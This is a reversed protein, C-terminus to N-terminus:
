NTNNEHVGTKGTATVTEASIRLRNRHRSNNYFVVKARGAEDTTVSPNWYLTRRYDGEDHPLTSYDPSYFESAKSSYGDLFTKRVGRGDRTPIQGQPYTEIFVACGLSQAVGLPATGACQMYDANIGASESIYISKIAELPITRYWEDQGIFEAGGQGPRWYVQVPEYNIIIMVPNQKYLTDLFNEDMAELMDFIDSFYYEGSDYSNDIEAKADYYTASAARTRAIRYENSRRTKRDTRVIVTEIRRAKEDTNAEAISDLLAASSVEAEQDDDFGADVAEEEKGAEQSVDVDEEPAFDARLDTYAYRRLAPSFARDL